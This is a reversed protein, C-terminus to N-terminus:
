CVDQKLNQLHELLTFPGSNMHFFKMVVTNLDQYSLTSVEKQICFSKQAM